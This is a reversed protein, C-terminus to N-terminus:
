AWQITRRPSSGQHKPPFEICERSVCRTSVHTWHKPRAWKSRPVQAVSPTRGTRSSRSAFLVPPTLRPDTACTDPFPRRLSPSTGPIATCIVLLTSYNPLRLFFTSTADRACRGARRSFFRRSETQRPYLISAPPEPHPSTLPTIPHLVANRRPNLSRQRHVGTTSM